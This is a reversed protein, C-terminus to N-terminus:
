QISSYDSKAVLKLSTAGQKQLRSILASIDQVEQDEYYYALQRITPFRQKM